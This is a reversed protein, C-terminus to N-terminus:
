YAWKVDNDSPAQGFIEALRSREAEIKQKRALYEKHTGNVISWQEEIIEVQKDTVLIKVQDKPRTRVYIFNGCHPCKKKKAPMQEILGSCYPCVPDSEGIEPLERPAAPKKFIDFLGM